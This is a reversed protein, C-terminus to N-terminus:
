DKPFWLILVWVIINNNPGMGILHTVPINSGRNIIGKNKKEKKSKM